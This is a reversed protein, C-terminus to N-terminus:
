RALLSGAEQVSSLRVEGQGGVLSRKGPLSPWCPFLGDRSWSYLQFPSWKKPHLRQTVKYYGGFQLSCVSLRSSAASVSVQESEEDKSEELHDVVAPKEVEKCFREPFYEALLEMTQRTREKLQRLFDRDVLLRAYSIESAYEARYLRANFEDGREAAARALWRALSARILARRVERLGEPSLKLKINENM